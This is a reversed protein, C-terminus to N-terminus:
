GRVQNDHRGGGPRASDRRSNRDPRPDDSFGTVMAAIMSAAVGRLAIRGALTLMALGLRRNVGGGLVFGTAAAIALATLPEDRVFESVDRHRPASNASIDVFGV